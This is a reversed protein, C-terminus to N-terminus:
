RHRNRINSLADFRVTHAALQGASTIGYYMSPRLKSPKILIMPGNSHVNKEGKYITGPEPRGWEGLGSAGALLMTSRPEEIEIGEDGDDDDWSKTIKNKYREGKTCWINDVVFERSIPLTDSQTYKAIRYHTDWIPFSEPSLTWSRLIGDSSTTGM